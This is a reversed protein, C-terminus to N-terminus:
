GKQFDKEIKLRKIIDDKIKRTYEDTKWRRLTKKCVGIIM